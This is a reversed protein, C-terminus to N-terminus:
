ASEEIRYEDEKTWKFFGDQAALYTYADAESSFRQAQRSDISCHGDKTMYGWGAPREPSWTGADNQRWGSAEYKLRIVFSIM